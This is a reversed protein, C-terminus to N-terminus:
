IVQFQQKTKPVNEHVAISNLIMREDRSLSSQNKHMSQITDQWKKQKLTGKEEKCRDKTHSLHLRASCFQFFKNLSMLISLM